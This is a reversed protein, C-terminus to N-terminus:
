CSRALGSVIDSIRRPSTNSGKESSRQSGKSPKGKPEPLPLMKGRVVLESVAAKAPARMSQFSVGSACTNLASTGPSFFSSTFTSTSSPLTSCILPSRFLSCSCFVSVQCRTSRLLPLNRRRNLSGSLTFDSFILAAM